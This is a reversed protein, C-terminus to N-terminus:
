RLLAEARKLGALIRKGLSAVKADDGAKIAARVNGSIDKELTEMLEDDKAELPHEVEEFHSVYAEAVQDGAKAKDGAAYTKLATEIAERTKGAQTAAAKIAAASTASSSDASDDDGCASLGILSAALATVLLSRM